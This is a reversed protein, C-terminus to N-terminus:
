CLRQMEHNIEEKDIAMTRDIDEEPIYHNICYDYLDFFYQYYSGRYLQKTRISDDFWNSPIGYAYWKM